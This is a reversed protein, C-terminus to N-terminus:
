LTIFSVTKCCSEDDNEVATKESKWLIKKLKKIQLFTNEGFEKKWIKISFFAIGGIIVCGFICLIAEWYNCIEMEEYDQLSRYHPIADMNLDFNCIRHAVIKITRSVM